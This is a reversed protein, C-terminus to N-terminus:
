FIETEFEDQLQEQLRKVARMATQLSSRTQTTLEKPSILKDPPKGQRAQQIEHSLLLDLLQDYADSLSASFDDSLKGLRVLANLRDM